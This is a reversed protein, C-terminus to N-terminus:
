TQVVHDFLRELIIRVAKVDAVGDFFDTETKMCTWLFAVGATDEESDRTLQILTHAAPSVNYQNVREVFSLLTPIAPLFEKRRAKREENCSSTMLISMTWAIEDRAEGDDFMMLAKILTSAAGMDMMPQKKLPDNAFKNVLKAALLRDSPATASALKQLANEM